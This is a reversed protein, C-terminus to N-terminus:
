SRKEAVGAACGYWHIVIDPWVDWMSEVGDPSLVHVRLKDGSDMLGNSIDSGSDNDM